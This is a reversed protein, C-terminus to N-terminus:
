ILVSLKAWDESSFSTKVALMENFCQGRGPKDASMLSAVFAAVAITPKAPRVL